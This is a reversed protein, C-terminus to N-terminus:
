SCPRPMGHPPVLTWPHPWRPPWSCLPGPRPGRYRSSPSAWRWPRWMCYNEKSAGCCGFFSVFFIVVGVVIIVIPAGSASPSSMILTKNLEIQVLIGIVILAIGCLQPPFPPLDVGRLAQDAGRGWLGRVAPLQHSEGTAPTAKPVLLLPSVLALGAM